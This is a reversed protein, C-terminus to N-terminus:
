KERLVKLKEWDVYEVKHLLVLNFLLYLYISTFIIVLLLLALM